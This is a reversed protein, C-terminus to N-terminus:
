SGKMRKEDRPCLFAPSRHSCSWGSEPSELMGVVSSLESVHRGSSVSSKEESPGPPLRAEGVRLCLGM